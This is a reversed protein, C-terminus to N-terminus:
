DRLSRGTLRLFVDELNPSRQSVIGLEEKFSDALDQGDSQFIYLTDEFEQWYFQRHKLEALVRERHEPLPRAELIQKGGYLSVLQAPSGQAVIRGLHMIALRDCLRAAEEMNQTTLLQTVGGEKLGQLKQWVLHRSQPDLGVTPEDLVLVRPQNILSRAILLRRRMGGSLTHILAAHKETLGLLELGDWARKLAERRPIDFYRAFTLLNQIVTLDPDLNDIQPLVGIIAKVQEPRTSIDLGSVWLEGATLPSTATLMRVVTTKGAGNPGILGFCEGERIEFDVGDVATFEGFRKVMRRASVIEM